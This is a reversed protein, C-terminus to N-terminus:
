QSINAFYRISIPVIYRDGGVVGPGIAGDRDITVTVGGSQYSSGRPFWSRIREAEARVAQTGQNLPYLLTVQFYGVERKFHGGIAPNEPPAPIYNLRQYAGQPTNFVVNEVQTPLLNSLLRLQGELAVSIEPFSM